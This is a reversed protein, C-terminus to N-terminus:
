DELTMIAFSIQSLIDQVFATTSETQLEILYRDRYDIYVYFGNKKAGSSWKKKQSAVQNPKACSYVTFM